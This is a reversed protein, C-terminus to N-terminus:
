LSSLNLECLYFYSSISILSLFLPLSSLLFDLPLTRLTVLSLTKLDGVLLLVM